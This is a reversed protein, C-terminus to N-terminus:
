FRQAIVMSYSSWRSICIFDILLAVMTVLLLGTSISMLIEGTDDDRGKEVGLWYLQWVPSTHKGPAERNILLFRFKEYFLKKKRNSISQTLYHNIM